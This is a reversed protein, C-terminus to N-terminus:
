LVRHMWDYPDQARGYQIDMLSNRMETAIPGMEGGNIQWTGLNSKVTGIPTVVAATGCAFVETIRGEALGQEWEQISVRREEAKYGKNRALMLLSDRTIGPLLTGSDLSPTVLVPRDNEKYVFFINMGGMEEVYRREHADLWVVQDCNQEMAEAQGLLSAAYNGAFKAAGTGGPAARIYDQALWVTVPKVGSAFYSGVPSTMILLQYESSPKVGLGLQSAFMVPRIYLSQGDEDPVWMRDTRVLEDVAEIFKEIPIEPMALRRASRCLRAANAEPRFMHVSGDAWQYAKFGEFISQGYHLVSTAPSMMIPAFPIIKASTWGTDVAWSMSVMHEAFISGFRLNSMQQRRTADDIRQQVLHVELGSPAEPSRLNTAEHSM